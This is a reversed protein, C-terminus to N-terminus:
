SNLQRNLKETSPEVYDAQPEEGRFVIPAGRSNLGVTVLLGRGLHNWLISRPLVDTM